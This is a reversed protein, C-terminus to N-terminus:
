RDADLRFLDVMRNTPDLLLIRGGLVVRAWDRPLKPLHATCVSPLPRVRKELGPRLTGNRQLHRELGPPLRDKKDLGPPLGSRDDV